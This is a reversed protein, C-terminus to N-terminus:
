FRKITHRKVYASDSIFRNGVAEWKYNPITRVWHNKIFMMWEDPDQTSLIAVARKRKAVAKAEAMQLAIRNNQSPENDFKQELLRERISYYIADYVEEIDPIMRYGEEDVSVGIYALLVKGKKFNVVINPYEVNYEVRSDENFNICENIHYPINFFHNTTRRMLSFEPFVEKSAKTNFTPNTNRNGYFFKSHNYAWQPNNVLYDYDADMVVKKTGCSDSCPDCKLSVNIECDTGYLKKTYDTIVHTPCEYTQEERYLAQSIYKLNTPLKGKYNEIDILAIEEIFADGPIILEAIGNAMYLVDDPNFDTKNGSKITIDNIVKKISTYNRKNM